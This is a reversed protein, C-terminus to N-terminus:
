QWQSSVDRYLYEMNQNNLVWATCGTGNGSSQGNYKCTYGNVGGDWGQFGMPRIGDKTIYFGFYDVGSKNPLADANLDVYLVACINSYQMGSSYSCGSGASTLAFSVGNNLIGKAYVSRNEPAYGYEKGSFTIYRDAFCGANERCSKAKKLYPAFIDYFKESGEMQAREGIDWFEAPGNEQKAMLFAQSFISYAQKLREVFVKERYKNILAPMTM